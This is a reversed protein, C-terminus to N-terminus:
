NHKKKPGTAKDEMIRAASDALKNVHDQINKIGTRLADAYYFNCLVSGIGTVTSDKGDNDFNAPVIASLAYFVGIGAMDKRLKELIADAKAMREESSLKTIAEDMMGIKYSPKNNKSM